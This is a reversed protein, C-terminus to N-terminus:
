KHWFQVYTWTINLGGPSSDTIYAGIEDHFRGLPAKEDRYFEYGNVYVSFRRKEVDHVTNLRVTQGLKAVNTAIAPQDRHVYLKGWKGVYLVFFPQNTGDNFTQKISIHKGLVSNVRFAGGFQHVGASYVNHYRREARLHGRGCGVGSRDVNPGKPIFFNNGDVRGGACQEVSYDPPQDPVWETGEVPPVSLGLTAGLCALLILLVTLM